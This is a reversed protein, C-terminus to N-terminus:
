VSVGACSCVTTEGSGVMLSKMEQEWTGTPTAHHSLCQCGKGDVGAANLNKPTRTARLLKIHSCPIIKPITCLECPVEGTHAATQATKRRRPPHPGEEDTMTEKDKTGGEARGSLDGEGLNAEWHSCQRM